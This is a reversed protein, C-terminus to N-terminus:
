AMPSFAREQMLRAIVPAHPRGEPRTRRHCENVWRVSRTRRQLVKRRSIFVRESVALMRAPLMAASSMM